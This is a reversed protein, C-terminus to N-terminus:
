QVEGKVVDSATADIARIRKLLTRARSKMAPTGTRVARRLLNIIEKRLNEDHDSLDTLAQLSFTRVISSSDALYRRLVGIAEYEETRTLTLTPLIEAIHWRVEQQNISAAIALLRKKYAKLWEPRRVTIKEIADAARMRILRDDHSLGAFLASFLSENDLVEAVVSDSRGISRRDGGTLKKLLRKSKDTSM